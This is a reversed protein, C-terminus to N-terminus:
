SPEEAGFVEVVFVESGVPCEQALMALGMGFAVPEVVQAIEGVRLEGPVSLDRIKDAFWIHVPSLNRVVMAFRAGRSPFGVEGHQQVSGFCGHETFEEFANLDTSGRRWVDAHKLM